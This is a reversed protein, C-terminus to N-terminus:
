ESRLAEVPSVRMARRAPLYSAAIAVAVLTGIVTAFTTMDTPPVGYLLASVGKSAALAMVVGAGLGVATLRLGEGVVLKYVDGPSAGVAIRVGLERTRQAVSQSLLGYVGISALLLALGGFLVLARARFAPQATTRSRAEELTSVEQLALDRDIEGMERRILATVASQPAASRIVVSMFPLGFQGYPLFLMPQPPQDVADRRFDGAVGVITVPDSGGFLLRRGIPDQHRPLHREVFARTVIAVAM